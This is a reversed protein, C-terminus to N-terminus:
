QVKIYIPDTTGNGNSVTLAYIGPSIVLYSPCTGGSTDGDGDSGMYQTCAQDPVAVTLLSDSQPMGGWLVGNVSGNSIWVATNPDLFGSGTLTLQGGVSVTMPSVTAITIGSGTASTGSATGAAQASYFAENEGAPTNIFTFTQIMADAVAEVHDADAQHAANVEAIEAPDSIGFFSADNAGHESSTIRYCSSNQDTDYITRADHNGAGIDAQQNEVFTVGNIIATQSPLSPEQDSYSTVPTCTASVAVSVSDTDKMVTSFYSTPFTFTVTGPDSTDDATVNNPYEMSFGLEYNLYTQWSSTDITTTTSVAAVAGTSTATVSTTVANISTSAVAVDGSGSMTSVTTSSTSSSFAFPAYSTSKMLFYFGLAGLVIGVLIALTVAVPLVKKQQYM